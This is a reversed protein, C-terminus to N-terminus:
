SRNPNPYGVGQVVAVRGSDYRAKLRPLAPSLGINEDLRLIQDRPIALSPRAQYYLPDGYPIVTNLGDNGGALLLVVLIRRSVDSAATPGAQAAVVAPGLDLIRATEALFSPVVMSAAVLGAGRKLFDRRQLPM